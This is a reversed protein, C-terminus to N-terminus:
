YYYQQFGIPYKKVAKKYNWPTGTINFICLCRRNISKKIIYSYPTQIYTIHTTFALLM